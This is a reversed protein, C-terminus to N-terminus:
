EGKKEFERMDLLDALHLMFLGLERLSTQEMPHGLKVGELKKLFIRYEGLFDQAEFDIM